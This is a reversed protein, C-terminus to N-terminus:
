MLVQNDGLPIIFVGASDTNFDPYDHKVSQAFTLNGVTMAAQGSSFTKTQDAVADSLANSGYCGTDYLDKYQQLLLLATPNQAFTTKNANLQDATGPALNEIQVGLEAFWLVQHWGDAM